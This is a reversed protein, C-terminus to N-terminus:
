SPPTPARLPRALVLTPPWRPRPRALISAVPLDDTGALIGPGRPQAPGRRKERQRAVRRPRLRELLAEEGQRTRHDPQECLARPARAPLRNRASEPAPSGNAAADRRRARAGVPQSPTRSSQGRAGDAAPFGAPEPGREVAAPRTRSLDSCLRRVLPQAGRRIRSRARPRRRRDVQRKLSLLVEPARQVEDLTLPRMALLSDADSRAQGLVGLDDLSLYARAGPLSQALTTKGTQRAGTLVVVPLARLADQLPAALWRGRFRNMAHNFDM